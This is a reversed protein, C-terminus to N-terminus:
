FTEDLITRRNFIINKRQNKSNSLSRFIRSLPPSLKFNEQFLLFLRPFSRTSPCFCAHRAIVATCRPDLRVSMETPQPTERNHQHPFPTRGHQHPPWHRASCRGGTERTNRRVHTGACRTPTRKCAHIRACRTCNRAHTRAGDGCVCLRQLCRARVEERTSVESGNDCWYREM